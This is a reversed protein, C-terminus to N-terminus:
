PNHVTFRNVYGGLTTYGLSIMASAWSFIKFVNALRKMVRKHIDSKANVFESVVRVEFFFIKVLAEISRFVLIQKLHSFVKSAM